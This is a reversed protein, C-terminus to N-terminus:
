WTYKVTYTVLKEQNPPLEVPFQIIRADRKEFKDSNDTVEWQHWRYLPEKILVSVPQKKHNRIKIAFSETLTKKDQDLTFNTQTREGVIDFASGLKVMLEEDKPTHQITDEGVFELSGDADDRNMEESKVAEHIM